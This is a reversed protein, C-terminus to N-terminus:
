YFIEKGADQQEALVAVREPSSFYNLFWEQEVDQTNLSVALTTGNIIERAIDAEDESSYKAMQILRAELAAATAPLWGTQM